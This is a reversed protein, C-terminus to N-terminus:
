SPLPETELGRSLRRELWAMAAGILRAMVSYLVLITLFPLATSGTNSRAVQANFTMDALSILSVVSTGKLLEVASNGLSPMMLVLAQPLVVHRMRQWRPLNLAIAAEHQERPVSLVGGRVVEAGYAGVNMGLILVGTQMPTMALGFLPLVFYAGFLQVFISSGRFFEIYVASSARVLAFPSIRGLGAAFALVLALAGGLLTLEITVLAGELILLLSGFPTM